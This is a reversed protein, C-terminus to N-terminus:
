DLESSLQIIWGRGTKKLPLDPRIAVYNIILETGILAVLCDNNFKGREM